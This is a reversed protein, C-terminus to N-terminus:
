CARMSLMSLMTNNRCCQDDVERRGSGRAVEAGVTGRLKLRARNRSRTWTTSLDAVSGKGGMREPDRKRPQGRESYGCGQPLSGDFGSESSHRRRRDVGIRDADAM